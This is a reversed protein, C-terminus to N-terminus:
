PVAGHVGRALCDRMEAAMIARAWSPWSMARPRITTFGAPGSVHGRGADRLCLRVLRRAAETAYGLGWFPKGLWYGFEYGEDELHLGICGMFVNDAKRLIASPIIATAM